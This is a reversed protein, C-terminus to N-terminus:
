QLLIKFVKVKFDETLKNKFAGWGTFFGVLSGVVGGGVTTFPDPSLLGIGTGIATKAGWTGLGYLAASPISSGYQGVFYSGAEILGVGDADYRAIEEDIEKLRKIDELDQDTPTYDLDFGNEYDIFKTGRTKLKFALMGKERSLVGKRIGQWSDEPINTFMDWLTESAALNRINDHALAAFAPDTLQRQLIPNGKARQLRQIRELQNREKLRQIAENSDLAFSKNLGLENALFLGEGVMNPDKKMVAQLSRKVQFNEAQERQDFVFDIPDIVNSEEVNQQINTQNSINQNSNNELNDIAQDLIDM